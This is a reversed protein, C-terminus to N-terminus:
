HFLDALANVQRDSSWKQQMLEFIAYTENLRLHNGAAKAQRTAAEVYTSALDRDGLMYAARTQRVTLELRNPVLKQPILKDVQEFTNWSMAPQKLHLYTMGELAAFSWHNFHTYAYNPDSTFQTPFVNHALDLYQTAAKTHNLQGHTETLGLYVRGQLLPSSDHAFTLAREYTQLRNLPQKLYFYVQAQRILSATKLHPDNSIEGYTLAQQAHDQATGFNQYQLALLSSLQYAQSALQAAQKQYSSPQQALEALPTLYHQLIQNVEVLGGEFYLQWALPINSSCLSVVEEPHLVKAQAGGQAIGLVVAPTGVLAAIAQRRSVGEGGDKKNQALNM